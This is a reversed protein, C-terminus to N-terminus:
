LNLNLGAFLVIGPMPYKNMVQYSTNLLNEGKCFINVHKNIKYGVRANLLNFSCTVPNAGTQLYLKEVNQMSLNFMFNKWYYTVSTYIQQQPTALVPNKMHIYSYNFHIILKKIPKIRIATEIGTNSFTGTNYYKPIGNIPLVQIMNSGDSKFVTVEASAIDKFFSQCVGAEYNIMKEPQLNRNAPAWMFMERITPSRFGKSVSGKITTTSTAKIAFGASPVPENGFMSNHQYRFGANLTLRKFLLQQILAYAGVENVSTDAFIMGKGGMAKTNEAMGGYNMYDVGTTITNGKFFSFSEYVVMGYNNDKSHFGDSLNHDGFNYFFRASGNIKEYSNDFSVAGMGRSINMTAGAYGGEPGPDQAEFRAVSLDANAKLHDNFTYGMRAYGNNITFASSDRHGDTHDRNIGAFVEFGKKKFGGNIMYKQTNYSGYMVRANGSYGETTQEKTIINIVGGMANSGYLVSAPGRIVEVREVDSAVYADALPHGMLGMFQPNGNLLVLVETTPSGGIGRMSIQGAAGNAVGFGTIGRETVFLGPVRESLVPLLNSESSEEIERKTVVSVTLPVNDRSVYTKTGTVIVKELEVSKVSDKDQSIGKEICAATLLLLILINKRM